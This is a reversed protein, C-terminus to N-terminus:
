DRFFNGGALDLEQPLQRKIVFVVKRKVNVGSQLVAFM